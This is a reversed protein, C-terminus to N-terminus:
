EQRRGLVNRRRTFLELIVSVRYVIYNSNRIAIIKGIAKGGVTLSAAMGSFIIGLLASDIFSLRGSLRFVILATASGSIVSCIDGVVDNCFSAVKGSNRILKVSRKAGRYKRSAMAHFPTEDASTVAVGIMDFLIGTLIIFLVTFVAFFLSADTFINQSVFLLVVSIIFSLATISIIWASNRSTNKLSNKRFKINEDKKEKGSDKLVDEL